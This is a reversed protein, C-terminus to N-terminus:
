NQDSPRLGDPQDCLGPKDGSPKRKRGARQLKQYEQSNLFMKCLHEMSRAAKQLERAERTAPKRGLFLQYALM